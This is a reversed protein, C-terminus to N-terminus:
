SLPPFTHLSPNGYVKPSYHDTDVSSINWRTGCYLANMKTKYIKNNDTDQKNTTMRLKELVRTENHSATEHWLGYFKHQRGIRWCTIKLAKQGIWKKKGRHLTKMRTGRLISNFYINNEFQVRKRAIKEGPHRSAVCHHHRCTQTYLRACIREWEGRELNQHHSPPVKTM